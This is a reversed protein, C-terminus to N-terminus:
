SERTYFYYFTSILAGAAVAVGLGASRLVSSDNLSVLFGIACGTLAGYAAARLEPPLAHQFRGLAFCLVALVVGSVVGLVVQGGTSPGGDRRMFAAYFGFIVGLVLPTAWGLWSHHRRVPPRAHAGRSRRFRRTGGRPPMTAQTAM